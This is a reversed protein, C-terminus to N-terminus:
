QAKQVPRCSLCFFMPANFYRKVFGNTRLKHKGCKICSLMDGLAGMGQFPSGGEKSVYRLGSASISTRDNKYMIQTVFGSTTALNHNNFIEIRHFIGISSGYLLLRSIRQVCPRLGVERSTNTCPAASTPNSGIRAQTIRSLSANATSTRSASIKAGALTHINHRRDNEIILLQGKAALLRIDKFLRPPL